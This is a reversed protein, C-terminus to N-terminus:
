HHLFTITFQHQFTTTNKLGSEDQTDCKVGTKYNEPMEDFCNIKRWCFRLLIEVFDEFIGGSCVLNERICLCVLTFFM